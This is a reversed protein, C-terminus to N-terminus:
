NLSFNINLQNNIKTGSRIIWVDVLKLTSELEVNKSKPMHICELGSKKLINLGIKLFPDSILVKM